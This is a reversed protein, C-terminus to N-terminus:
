VYKRLKTHFQEIRLAMQPFPEDVLNIRSIPIPAPKGSISTSNLADDVHLIYKFGSKAIVEEAQKGTQGNPLALIDVTLDLKSELESKSGLIEKDLVSKDAITGLADHSYTHSGIEVNHNACEKIENWNMMRQSTDVDVKDELQTLAKERKDIPLNLLTKFTELYFPMWLGGFDSLSKKNEDLEITLSTSAKFHHDFLINLRETWITRGNEACQNVFNHNCPLGHKILLPLANEYFDYYGDDFSLIVYPRSSNISALNELDKFGIVTYNKKVYYLLKDFTAPKIPNWFSNREDSIRHLSLM